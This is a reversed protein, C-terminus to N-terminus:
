ESGPRDALVERIRASLEANVKEWVRDCAESVKEGPLVNDEIEVDIKVNEFNGLNKLYSVGYRVRAPTRTRDNETLESM